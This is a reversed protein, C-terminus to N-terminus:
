RAADGNGSAKRGLAARAIKAHMFGLAVLGFMHMYDTAGAGANDPNAMANNMFWMTAQQLDGLAKQLPGTFPKMAEEGANEKCFGGVEGFFAM